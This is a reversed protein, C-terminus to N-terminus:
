HSGHIYTTPTIVSIEYHGSVTNSSWEVSGHLYLWRYASHNNKCLRHNEFCYQLFNLDEPINCQALEYVKSINWHLMSGVDSPLHTEQHTMLTYQTSSIYSWEKLVESSFASPHDAKYGPMKLVPSLSGAGISSTDPHMGSGTQINYPSFVRSHITGLNSLLRALLRM